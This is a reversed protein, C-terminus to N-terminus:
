GDASSSQTGDAEAQNAEHGGGGGTHSQDRDMM